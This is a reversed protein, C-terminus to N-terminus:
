RGGRGELNRRPQRCWAPSRCRFGAEQDPACRDRPYRTDGTRAPANFSAAASRDNCKERLIASAPRMSRTASSSPAHISHVRVHPCEVRQRGSASRIGAELPLHVLIPIVDVLRTAKKDDDVANAALGGAALGRVHGERHNALTEFAFCPGIGSRTRSAIAM